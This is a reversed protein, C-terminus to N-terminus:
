NFNGRRKYIKNWVAKYNIMFDELLLRRNISSCSIQIRIRKIQQAHLCLLKPVIHSEYDSNVITIIHYEILFLLWKHLNKSPIKEWHRCFKDLSIKKNKFNEIDRKLNLLSQEGELARRAGLPCRFIDMYQTAKTSSISFTEQLWTCAEKKSCIIRLTQCRSTVTFPLSHMDQRDILIIVANDPPEELTKLLCGCAHFNLKDADKYLVIRGIRGRARLRIFSNAARVQDVSISQEKAEVIMLIDSPSTKFDLCSDCIGCPRNSVNKCLLSQVLHYAFKKCGFGRKGSVHFAHPIRGSHYIKQWHNWTIQHWRYLM